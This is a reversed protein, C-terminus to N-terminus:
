LQGEKGALIIARFALYANVTKDVFHPVRMTPASILWKIPQGENCNAWYETMDLKRRDEPCAQIIVAQGEDCIYLIEILLIRNYSPRFM